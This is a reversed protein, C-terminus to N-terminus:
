ANVFRSSVPANEQNQNFDELIDAAKRMLDPRDKFAGLGRNCHACLIFRVKGTVHCHDLNWGIKTGPNKSGCIACKSGQNRFIEDIQEPTLGAGNARKRAQIKALKEPDERRKRQHERHGERRKDLHKQYSRKSRENAQARVKDPNQALRKAHSAKNDENVCKKCRPTVGYKGGSNKYFHELSAPFDKKCKTCTKLPM